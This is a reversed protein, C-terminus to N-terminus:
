PNRARAAGRRGRDDTGRAATPQPESTFRLIETFPGLPGHSDGVRRGDITLWAHGLVVDESRGLGIVLSSRVGAAILYRYALLSRDLCNDSSRLLRPRCVLAALEVIREREPLWGAASGAPVGGAFAVLRTIGLGHKLTTVLLRWVVMRVM